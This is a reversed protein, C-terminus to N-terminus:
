RSWPCRGGGASTCASRGAVAGVACRQGCRSSQPCCKARAAHLSTSRSGNRSRPARIPTSARIGAGGSSSTPAPLPEPHSIHRQTMPFDGSHLHDRSTSWPSTNSAALVRPLTSPQSRAGPTLRASNGMMEALLEISACGGAAFLDVVIEGTRLDSCQPLPFNLPRSGDAM